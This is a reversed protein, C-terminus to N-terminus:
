GLNRFIYDISLKLFKINNNNFTVINTSTSFLIGLRTVRDHERRPRLHVHLTIYNHNYHLLIKMKGKVDKDSYHVKEQRITRNNKDLNM